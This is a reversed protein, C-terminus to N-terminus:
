ADLELAPEDPHARYLLLTHGLTQAIDAGLETEVAAAVEKRDLPCEGGCRIKILEHALLQEDIANKVADTLGAKGVQVVPPLGHGLSRLRRRQKGTLAM